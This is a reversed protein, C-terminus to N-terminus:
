DVGGNTSQLVMFDGPTSHRMWYLAARRTTKPGIQILHASPFRGQVERERRVLDNTVGASVM